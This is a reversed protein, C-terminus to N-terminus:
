QSHRIVSIEERTKFITFYENINELFVGASFARAVPLSIFRGDSEDCRRKELDLGGTEHRARCCFM